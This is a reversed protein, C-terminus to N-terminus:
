SDVDGGARFSYLHARDLEFVLRIRQGALQRATREGQWRVAAGFPHGQSTDREVAICEDFSFGALPAHDEGRVEVRVRGGTNRPHGELNARPDANVLLEGDVWTMPRTLVKGPPSFYSTDGTFLSCFGDVRLTALGIAGYQHPTSAVHCAARGSYYFWLHGHHHIPMSSSLNLWRSDFAGEAGWEIFRPRERSRQWQRGDRSWAIETDLVDPTMHMREIGALVQGEYPFGVASYFQM